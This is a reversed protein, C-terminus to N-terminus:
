RRHVAGQIREKANDVLEEAKGVAGEVKDKVRASAQDVKGERAMRDNKTLNGAAEKARGKFDEAANPM